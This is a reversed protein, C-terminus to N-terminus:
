DVLLCIEFAFGCQTVSQVSDIESDEKSVLVVREIWM